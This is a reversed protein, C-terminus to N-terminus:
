SSCGGRVEVRANVDAGHAILAETVLRHGREVARHLPTGGWRQAPVSSALRGSSLRLSQCKRAHHFAERQACCAPFSLCASAEATAKVDAGHALLLEVVKVNGKEAAMHLPTTGDAKLFSRSPSM